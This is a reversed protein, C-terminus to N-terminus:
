QLPQTCLTAKKTLWLASSGSLGKMRAIERLFMTPLARAVPLAPLTTHDDIVDESEIRGCPLWFGSRRTEQGADHRGNRLLESADPTGHVPVEDKGSRAWCATAATRATRTRIPPTPLPGAAPPGGPRPCANEYACEYAGPEARAADCTARPVTSRCRGDRM